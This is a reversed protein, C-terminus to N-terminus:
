ELAEKLFSLSKERETQILMDIHEYDIPDSIDSTFSDSHYRRNTLGYNTCFSEIRTNKNDKSSEEYRDFVVFKRHFLTSFVMGHFSDTCVYDAYKILSVFDVPSWEYSSYDAIGKNITELREMPILVVKLGTAEKLQNVSRRHFENDGLFYVLIYPEEIIRKTRLIEDWEQASFLMTPDAVVEADRGTLNKVILSASNERVSIKQIRNLYETTKKRQNEPIAKVGFSAAYSFKEKEDDVFMLNYFNTELGSPSWLQDSGVMYIDYKKGAECLESYGKCVCESSHFYDKRFQHFASERMMAKMKLEKSKMIAIRRKILLLKDSWMIPNFLRRVMRISKKKNYRILDYEVNFKDLAKQTALSQLMSGFNNNNLVLCAGLKKM